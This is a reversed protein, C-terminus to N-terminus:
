NVPYSFNRMDEEFKWVNPVTVTLTRRDVKFNFTKVQFLSIWTSFNSVCLLVAPSRNVPAFVAFTFLRRSDCNGSVAIQRRIAIQRTIADPNYRELNSVGVSDPFNGFVFQLQALQVLLNFAIDPLFPATLILSIRASDLHTRNFWLTRADVSYM